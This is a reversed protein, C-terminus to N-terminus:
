FDRRHKLVETIDPGQSDRERARQSQAKKADVRLRGGLVRGGGDSFVWSQDDEEFQASAIRILGKRLGLRKCVKQVFKANVRLGTRHTLIRALAPDSFFCFGPLGPWECRLWNGVLPSAIKESVTTEPLHTVRRIAWRQIAKRRGLIRVDREFLTAQQRLIHSRMEPSAAALLQKGADRRWYRLLLKASVRERDEDTRAERLKQSWDTLVSGGGVAAWALHIAAKRQSAAAKLVKLLDTEVSGEKTTEWQILFDWSRDGRFSSAQRRIQRPITRLIQGVWGPDAALDAVSDCLRRAPTSM